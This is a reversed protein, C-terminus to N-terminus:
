FCVWIYNPPQNICTQPVVDTCLMHKDYSVSTIFRTRLNGILIGVVFQVLAITHFKLVNTEVHDLDRDKQTVGNHVMPRSARGLVKKSEWLSEGRSEGGQTEDFELVEPSSSHVYYM